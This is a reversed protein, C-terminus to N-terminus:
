VRFRPSLCPLALDLPTVGMAATRTAAGEEDALVSGGLHPGLYKVRDGLDQVRM